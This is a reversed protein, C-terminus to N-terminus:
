SHQWSRPEACCDCVDDVDGRAAAGVHRQSAVQTPVQLPAQSHLECRAAPENLMGPRATLYSDPAKQGAHIMLETVKEFCPTESLTKRQGKALWKLNWAVEMERLQRFKDVLDLERSAVRWRFVHEVSPSTAHSCVIMAMGSYINQALQDSM